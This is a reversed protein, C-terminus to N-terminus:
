KKGKKGKKKKKTAEAQKEEKQHQKEKEIQEERHIDDKEMLSLRARSRVLKQEQLWNEKAIVDKKEMAKLYDRQQEEQKRLREDLSEEKKLKGANEKLRHLIQLIQCQTWDNYGIDFCILTNNKLMAEYISKCGEPGIHCRWISMHTLSKNVSLMKSLHFISTRDKENGSLATLNNSDLSVHKLTNNTQLADGLSKITKPGLYNGGLELKILFRNNRLARCIYAGALDSLNMNSVDLSLISENNWMVKALSRATVNNVYFRCHEQVNNSKIANYWKAASKDKELENREENIEFEMAMKRKQSIAQKAELERAEIMEKKKSEVYSKHETDFEAQLIKADDEFFGRPHLGRREMEHILDNLTLASADLKHVVISEDVDSNAIECMEEGDKDLLDEFKDYLNEEVSAMKTREGSEKKTNHIIAVSFKFKLDLLEIKFNLFNNQERSGTM